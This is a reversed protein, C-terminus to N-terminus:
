QTSPSKSEFSVADVLVSAFFARCPECENYLTEGFCSRCDQSQLDDVCASECELVKITTACNVASWASCAYGIYFM